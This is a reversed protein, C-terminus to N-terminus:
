TSRNRAARPAPRPRSTKARSAVAERRGQPAHRAFQGRAHDPFGRRDPREVQLEDIEASADVARRFADRALPRRIRRPQRRHHRADFASGAVGLDGRGPVSLVLREFRLDARDDEDAVGALEDVVVEIAQCRRCDRESPQLRGDEGELLAAVGLRSRTECSRRIEPPAYPRKSAPAALCNPSSRLATASNATPPVVARSPRLSAALM